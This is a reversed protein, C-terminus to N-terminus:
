WGPPRAARRSRRRGRSCGAVRRGLRRRGAVHGDPEDGVREGLDGAPQRCALRDDGSRGGVEHRRRGVTAAGERAAANPAPPPSRPPKPPLPPLRPPPHGDCGIMRSSRTDRVYECPGGRPARAGPRRGSRPPPRTRPWRRGTRAGALARHHVDQAAQVARRGAGVREGPGGDVVSESSPRALSRLRAIPNTNWDYLRSGRVVASSFTAAGSSYWPMPPPFTAPPRTRRELPQPQAVPQVVLRALQRAALLLTDRDGARQDRVRREDEGVLRRAVEVGGGPAVHHADEVREVRGPARDDEDGMVGVDGRGRGGPGCGRRVARRMLTRSSMRSASERRRVLRSRAASVISPTIMPTADTTASTPTPCPVVDLMVLRSWPRPM